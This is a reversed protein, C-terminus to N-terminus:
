LKTRLSASATTTSSPKTAAAKMPALVKTTFVDEVARVTAECGVKDLLGAAQAKRQLSGHVNALLLTVGRKKAEEELEELSRLGSLDMNSIGTADIILFSLGPSSDIM